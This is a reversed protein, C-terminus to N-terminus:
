EKEAIAARAEKEGQSGKPWEWASRPKHGKALAPFKRAERVAVRLKERALRPEVKLEACITKLSVAAPKASSSVKQAEKIPAQGPKTNPKHEPTM